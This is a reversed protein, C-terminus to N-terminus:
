ELFKKIKKANQYGKFYLDEISEKDKTLTKMNGISDPAIICVRGQEELKECMDVCSNYVHSRNAMGEAAKPYKHSLIRAIIMDNKPVRRFEKPRTLILVVKDGGDEFAKQYPVPDSLGGDYYPIGAVYYPRNVVPVCCSAKIPDYQDQQMDNKYFYQPKGTLANTSVVVMERADQQIANWDLPYEGGQDSLASYIYDLGIYSGTKVLNKASMYEWRPLYETYFVFNRGKQKAMYSAVNASGASVGIAYDFNINEELCYDFVGAGFAGRLGGGVDIVGLKM